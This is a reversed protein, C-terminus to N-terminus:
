VDRHRADRAGGFGNVCRWRLSVVLGIPEDEGFQGVFGRGGDILQELVEVVAELMMVAQLQVAPIVSEIFALGAVM